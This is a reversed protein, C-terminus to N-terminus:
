ERRSHHKCKSTRLDAFCFERRFWQKGKQERIEHLTTGGPQFVADTSKNLWRELLQGDAYILLELERPKFPPKLEVKIAFHAGPEAKVYTTTTRPVVDENEDVHEELPQGRVCIQVTAGPYDNHIAM